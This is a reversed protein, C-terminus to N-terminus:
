NNKHFHKLSFSTFRRKAQQCANNKVIQLCSHMAFKRIPTLAHCNSRPYFRTLFFFCVVLVSYETVAFSVLFM